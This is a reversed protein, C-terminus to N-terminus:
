RWGLKYEMIQDRGQNLQHIRQRLFQSNRTGHPCLIPHSINKWWLSIERFQLGKMEEYIANHSRTDEASFLTERSGICREIGQTVYDHTWRFKSIGRSENNYIMIQGQLRHIREDTGIIALRAPLNDVYDRYAEWEEKAAHLLEIELPTFGRYGHQRIQDILLSDSPYKCNTTLIGLPSVCGPFSTHKSMKFIGAGQITYFAHRLFNRPELISVFFM